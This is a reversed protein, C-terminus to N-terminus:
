EVFVAIAEDLRVAGPQGRLVPAHEARERAAARRRQAAMEIATPVTVMPGDRVVRTPIPVTRLAQGVGAVPPQGCPLLLEQGDPVVMDDERQRVLERPERQLVLADDVIQEEAGAGGRQELDGGIRLMETRRDAQQTHEVRPALLHQVMRVHVAHHRDAAQRGIARPPHVM